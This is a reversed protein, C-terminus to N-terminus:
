KTYRALHYTRKKPSTVNETWGVVLRGCADVMLQPAQVTPDGSSVASGRPDALESQASDDGIITRLRSVGDGDLEDWAIAFGDDFAVASDPVAPSEGFGINKHSESWVGGELAQIEIRTNPVECCSAFAVFTNNTEILHPSFRTGSLNALPADQQWTNGQLRYVPIDNNDSFTLTLTDSRSVELDPYFMSGAIAQGLASWSSGNWRYTAIQKRSGDDEVWAVVPQGSADLAITGRQTHPIGGDADGIQGGFTQWSTGNWTYVRPHIRNSDTRREGFLVYATGGAAVAQQIYARESEWAGVELPSSWAGDSWRYGILRENAGVTRAVFVMPDINDILAFRGVATDSIDTDDLASLVEWGSATPCQPLPTDVFGDSPTDSGRDKAADIPRGVKGTACATLSIIGGAVIWRRSTWFHGVKIYYYVDRYAGCALIVM